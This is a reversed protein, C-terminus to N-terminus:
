KLVEKQTKIKSEKPSEKFLHPNEKMYKIIPDLFRQEQEKTMGLKNVM